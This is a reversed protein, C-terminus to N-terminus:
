QGGDLHIVTQTARGLATIQVLGSRNDKDLYIRHGRVAGSNERRTTWGRRRLERAFYAATDGENQPGLLTLTTAHRPGDGTEITSTLAAGRPLPLDAPLAAQLPRADNLYRIASVGETGQGAGSTVEVTILFPGERKSLVTWNGMLAQVPHSAAWRARFFQLVQQPPSQTQFRRVQMWHGNHRLREAVPVVQSGPPYNLLPWAPEAAATAVGGYLLLLLAPKLMSAEEGQTARM